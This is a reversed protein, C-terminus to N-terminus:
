AMTILMDPDAAPDWVAAAINTIITEGMASFYTLANNPGVLFVSIGTDGAKTTYFQLNPNFSSNSGEHYFTTNSATYKEAIPQGSSNTFLHHSEPALHLTLLKYIADSPRYELTGKIALEPEPIVGWPLDMGNYHSFDMPLITIHANKMFSDDNTVFYLMGNSVTYSWGNPIPISVQWDDLYRATYQVGNADTFTTPTYAVPASSTSPVSANESTSTSSGTNSTTTSQAPSGPNPQSSQALAPNGCASLTFLLLMSLIIPHIQKRM